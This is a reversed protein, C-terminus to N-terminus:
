GGQGNREHHPSAGWPETWKAAFEVARAMTRSYNAVLVADRVDQLGDVYQDSIFGSGLMGIGVV